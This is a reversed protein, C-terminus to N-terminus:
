SVKFYGNYRGPVLEYTAKGRMMYKSNMFGQVARRKIWDYSKKLDSDQYSELNGIMVERQELSASRFPVAHTGWEGKDMLALGNEFIKHDQVPHCDDLMKLVFLHLNGIEKDDIEKIPLITNIVVSLTEEMQGTINLNNLIVSAKGGPNCSRLIWTGGVLLSMGIIAERRNM